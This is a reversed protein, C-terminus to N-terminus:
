FRVGPDLRCLLDGAEVFTGKRLPESSVAGTTEARVEVERMAETQGRLIVASDIERAVSKRAVVKILASTDEAEAADAEADATEETTEPADDQSMGALTAMTWEREIVVLYLGTAVLIALIVSVVRM